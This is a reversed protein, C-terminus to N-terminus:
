GPLPQIRAAALVRQSASRRQVLRLLADRGEVRRDGIQQSAAAVHDVLEDVRQEVLAVREVRVRGPAPLFAVGVGNPM